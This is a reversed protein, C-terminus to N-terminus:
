GHDLEAAPSRVPTLDRHGPGARRAQLGLGQLGQGITPAGAATWTSRALAPPTRSTSSHRLLRLHGPLKAFQDIMDVFNDFHIEGGSPLPLTGSADITKNKDKTRLRGVADYNELAFGICTSCRTAPPAPRTRPTSSSSRAGDHRRHDGTTSSSTVPRPPVAACLSRRASSAAAASWRPTSRPRRAGGPLQAQTLLGRRQAPDLETRAAVDPPPAPRLAERHQANVYGYRRRSCRADPQPRRGADFM